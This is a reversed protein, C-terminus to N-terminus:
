DFNTDFKYYIVLTLYDEIISFRDHMIIYIDPNSM